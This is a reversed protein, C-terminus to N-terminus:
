TLRHQTVKRLISETFAIQSHERRQCTAIACPKRGSQDREQFLNMGTSIASPPARKNEGALNRFSSTVTDIHKLTGGKPEPSM